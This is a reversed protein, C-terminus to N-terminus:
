IRSLENRGSYLWKLEAYIISCLMFCLLFINKDVINTCDNIMLYYVFLSPWLILLRVYMIYFLRYMIFLNTMYKNGFNMMLLKPGSVISMGESLGIFPILGYINYFNIFLLSTIAIVHHIFLDIRITKEIGLYIQFFMIVTDFVFYSMFFYYLDTFDEKIIPNYLCKDYYLYSITKYSQHTMIACTLSRMLNVSYKEFIRTEVNVYKLVQHFIFMSSGMFLVNTFFTLPYM